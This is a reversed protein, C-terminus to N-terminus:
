NTPELIAGRRREYDPSDCDSAILHTEIFPFPEIATVAPGVPHVVSNQMTWFFAHRALEAGSSLNLKTKLRERYTEVTSVAISLEAAIDHTNRGKGILTLIQLERTSL